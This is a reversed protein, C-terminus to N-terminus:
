AMPTAASHQALCEKFALAVADQCLAVFRFRAFDIENRPSAIMEGKDLNLLPFGLILGSSGNCGTLLGADRHGRLNKEALVGGESLAGGAEINDEDAWGFAAGM